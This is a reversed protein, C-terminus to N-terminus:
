GKICFWRISDKQGIVLRTRVVQSCHHTSVKYCRFYSHTGTVKKVYQARGVAGAEYTYQTFESVAQLFVMLQLACTDVRMDDPLPFRETTEEVLHKCVAKVLVTGGQVVDPKSM